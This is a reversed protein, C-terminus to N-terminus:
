LPRGCDCRNCRPTRSAPAAFDRSAGVFLHPGVEAGSAAIEDAAWNIMAIDRRLWPDNPSHLLHTPGLLQTFGRAVAAKVIRAARRRGEGGDFDTINHHRQLGWPLAALSETHSGPLGMQQTKPDLIVDFDHQRAETILARHREINHADIVFGFIGREGTAILHLMEVHDNRGVRV